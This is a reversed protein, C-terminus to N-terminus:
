VLNSVHLGRHAIARQLPLGLQGRDRSDTNTIALRSTLTACTGM